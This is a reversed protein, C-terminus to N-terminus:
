KCSELKLKFRKSIFEKICKGQYIFTGKQLCPITKVAKGVGMEAMADLFRLLTNSIATSTTRSVNATMNPVCYHVIDNKIFTPNALNTPHSTEANGGQDIALDALVARYKMSDLMTESILKPAIYGGPNAASTIVVDAHSIAKEINASNSFYTAIRGKFKEEMKRLKEINNDLVVVYAGNGVGAVAAAEGTLGAGLIVISGQPVGAVGAIIKARGGEQNQLYHISTSVAVHGAIEAVSAVLPRFGSDTEILEYGIVTANKEILADIIDQHRVVLHQWSFITQEERILDIEDRELPSIKMLVDSRGYVEETSFVIHAGAQIYQEDTWGSDLGANTQVYVIVNQNTLHLVGAPNLAVRHEQNRTEHVIGVNM